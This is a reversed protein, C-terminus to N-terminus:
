KLGGIIANLDDINVKDLSPASINLRDQIEKVLDAKLPRAPRPAKPTNGQVTYDLGLSKIKAVVSRPKQMYKSAFETAQAFDWTPQAKLEDIMAESYSM